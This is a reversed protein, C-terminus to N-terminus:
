HNFLQSLKLRIEALEQETFAAPKGNGDIGRLKHKHCKIHPLHTRFLEDAKVLAFIARATTLPKTKKAM